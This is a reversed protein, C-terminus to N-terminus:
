VRPALSYCLAHNAHELAGLEQSGEALVEQQEQVLDVRNLARADHRTMRLTTRQWRYWNQNLALLASHLRTQKLRIHGKACGQYSAAASRKTQMSSLVIRGEALADQQEQV